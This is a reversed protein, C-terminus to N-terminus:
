NEKRKQDKTLIKKTAVIIDIDNTSRPNGWVSIAFGGTIAYPIKLDELIEVIKALLEAPEM